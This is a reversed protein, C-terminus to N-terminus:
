AASPPKLVRSVHASLLSRSLSSKSLVAVAGKLQELHEAGLISSTLVLVPIAATAPDGKLSRFVEFGNLGPLYIDLLIFDPAEAQALRLGETGDPAEIISWPGDAQLMHRLVYRTSEEDDVILIKGNADARAAEEVSHGPLVVPIDLTFLSGQGIQSSVAIHGGLAEALKRSLPLGLGSGKFRGQLPNRIQIFEDFVREQDGDSIGIGSDQVAFAVRGPTPASATVSVQGRETYKLANSVLNRLIQSLKGEDTHLVLENTRDAFTLDVHDSAQLPRMMGRLASLIDATSTKSVHLDIRGSEVKALDLLDNVLRTLTEASQRIYSVQRQQEENLEGDVQDALMRSLANISNLPTRLEHSVNSLFQSKVESARKLEDARQELEAYLAVVGRNTSELEENVQALEGRMAELDTTTALLDRNQGLVEDILAQPTAKHLETMLDGPQISVDQGGAPLFKGFSVRTGRGPTSGIEFRDMLRRTGVIGVGMGVPSVYSGDLITQLHPIGPGMDEFSMGLLQRDGNRELAFRLTGGNGYVVTNRAIESVATAICTQAQRDFGISRAIQRARQRAHVIDQESKLEITLLPGSTM